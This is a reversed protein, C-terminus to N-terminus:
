FNITFFLLFYPHFKAKVAIATDAHKKHESFIASFPKFYALFM